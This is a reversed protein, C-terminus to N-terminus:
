QIALTLPFTGTLPGGPLDFEASEFAKLVCSQLGEDKFSGSAMEASSVRGDAQIRFSVTGTGGATPDRQLATDYCGGLQGQIGVVGAQVQSASLKGLVVKAMEGSVSAQVKAMTQGDARALDFTTYGAHSAARLVPSLESFPLMSPAEVHLTSQAGSGFDLTPTAVDDILTAGSTLTISRAKPTGQAPGLTGGIFVQDFVGGASRAAASLVGYTTDERANISIRAQDPCAKKVTQLSASLAKWDYDMAESCGGGECALPTASLAPRGQPYLISDAGQVPTGGSMLDISLSMECPDAFALTSFLALLM